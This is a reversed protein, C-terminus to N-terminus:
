KEFDEERRIKREFILITQDITANTGSSYGYAGYSSSQKGIENTFAHVLRWGELSYRTLVLQLKNVNLAGSSDDVLTVVDYEYLANNAITLKKIHELERQRQIILEKAKREKEEQEKRIKEAKEAFQQAEAKKEEAIKKAEMFDPISEVYQNIIEEVRSRATEDEIDILKDNLYVYSAMAM